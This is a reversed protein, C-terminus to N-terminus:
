GRSAALGARVIELAVAGTEVRKLWHNFRVSPGLLVLQFAVRMHPLSM